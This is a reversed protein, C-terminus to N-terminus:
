GNEGEAKLCNMMERFLHLYELGKETTKFKKGDQEILDSKMLLDLYRKFINPGLYCSYIIRYKSAGELSVELIDATIEFRGRALGVSVSRRRM